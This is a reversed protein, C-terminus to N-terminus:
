GQPIYWAEQMEHILILCYCSSPSTKGAIGCTMWRASSGCGNTIAIRKGFDVRKISTMECNQLPAIAHLLGGLSSGGSLIRQRVAGVPRQGFFGGGM